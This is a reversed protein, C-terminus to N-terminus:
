YLYTIKEMLSTEAGMNKRRRALNCAARCFLSTEKMLHKLTPELVTSKSVFNEMEDYDSTYLSLFFSCTITNIMIKKDTYQKM